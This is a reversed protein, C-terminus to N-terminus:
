MKIAKCVSMRYVTIPKTAQSYMICPNLDTQMGRRGDAKWTDSSDRIDTQRNDLALNIAERWFIDLIYVLIKSVNFVTRNQIKTLM